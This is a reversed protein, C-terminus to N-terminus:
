IAAIADCVYDVDRDSMDPWLPLYLGRRALGDAVQYERTAFRCLHPQRHLPWFYSRTEVGAAALAARAADRVAENRCVLPFVWWVSGAVRAPFVAWTLRDLRELYRQAVAARRALLEEHREHQVQGIAANVDTMRYGYALELHHFHDGPTFAHARLSRLRDALRPEDTLVMGGEGTTVIKNAYFSFCALRGLSGCARTGVRAYHAEACDEIIPVHPFRRRLAQLFGAAPVGYLHPVIAAKIGHDVNALQHPDANGTEPEVDIFVPAAGRYVVANAVAVMTLTPLLVRDGPGVDLAALALHLASTGSNCAVGHRRGHAAAFAREFQAVREGGSIWGSMVAAQAAAAEKEGLSPRAVPIHRPAARNVTPDPM